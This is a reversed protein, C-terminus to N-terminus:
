FIHNLYHISIILQNIQNNEMLLQQQLDFKKNVHKQIMESMCKKQEAKNKYKECGPFIPADEIFAFPVEEVDEDAEAVDVDGADFPETVEKPTTTTELVQDKIKTDNDVIKIKDTILTPKIVPEPAVKKVVVVEEKFVPIYTDSDEIVLVEVMAPDNESATKVQFLTYVMFLSLALSVSFRLLPNREIKLDNKKALHSERVGTADVNETHNVNKM